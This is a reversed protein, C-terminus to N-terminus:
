RDLKYVPQYVLEYNQIISEPTICVCLLLRRYNVFLVASVKFHELYARFFPFAQDVVARVLPLHPCKGCGYRVLVM